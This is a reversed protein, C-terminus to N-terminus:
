REIVVGLGALLGQAEPFTFRAGRVKNAIPDILYNLAGRLDAKLLSTNQFRANLFDSERLDSESLDAQSFDTERLICNFFATKKLKLGVFNSYSLNCEKFSPNVLDDLQVWQIGLLKCGEFTADRVRANALPVNSLDSSAFSCGIFRARALQTGKFDCKMFSCDEFTHDTFDSGSFNLEVFKEGIHEENQSPEMAENIM